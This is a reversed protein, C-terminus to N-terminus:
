SVLTRYSNISAVYTALMALNQSVKESVTINCIARTIPHPHTHTWYNAYATMIGLIPRSLRQSYNPVVCIRLLAM